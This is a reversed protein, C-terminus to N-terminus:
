SNSSLLGNMANNNNNRSQPMKQAQLGQVAAQLMMQQQQQQHQMFQQQMMQHQYFQQTVMKFQQQNQKKYQEFQKFLTKKDYISEAMPMVTKLASPPSPGLLQQRKLKLNQKFQEETIFCIHSLQFALAYYQQFIQSKQMDDQTLIESQDCMEHQYPCEKNLCPTSKLFFKCYKTRGFSAKIVRGEYSFQDVALIGISAEQPNSYSIFASYSQLQNDAKYIKDKNILV